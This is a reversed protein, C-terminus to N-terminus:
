FSWIIALTLRYELKEDRDQSIPADGSMSFKLGTFPSYWVGPSVFVVYGEDFEFETYVKVSLSLEAGPYKEVLPRWAFEGGATLADARRFHHAGQTNFQHLLFAGAEVYGWEHTVAAGIIVDFSGSGPQDKPEVRRLDTEGTPFQLGVVVAATTETMEGASFYLRYKALATVDGPGSGEDLLVYPVILGLTLKENLGYSASAAVVDEDAHTHRTYTYVMSLSTGGLFLTEGTQINIGGEDLLALALLIM